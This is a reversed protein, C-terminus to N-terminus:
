SPAAASVRSAVSGSGSGGGWCASSSGCGSGIFRLGIGYGRGAGPRLLPLGRIANNRGLGADARGRMCTGGSCLCAATVGAAVPGGWRAAANCRAAQRGWDSRSVARSRLVALGATRIRAAAMAGRCVTDGAAGTEGAECHASWCSRRACIALLRMCIALSAARGCCRVVSRCVTGWGFMGAAVRDANMPTCGRSFGQRGWWGCRMHPM